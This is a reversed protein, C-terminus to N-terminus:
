PILNPILGSSSTAPTMVQLGPGIDAKANLKGLDESDNTPYCLSGFVHLYSLDLKKNHMLEYPNKNYRLRILSRNQTYCATNIAEAWLFLHAKLFILMTRATEMLTQNRREVVGNQQPTRAVFTQHSIGVNEYFGRLTQNICKIIADPAEDKLRLFKVWTFRSYDGIIVLIYKKENMSEVRMPGCIDNGLQYDGYGMIKAVQDNGFRVTGLFKSVFNMLQSRNGIMHKSCGSDLYWLVIQVV